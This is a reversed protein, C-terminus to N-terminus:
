LTILPQPTPLLCIRFGVLLVKLLDELYVTFLLHEMSSQLPEMSFLLPVQEM